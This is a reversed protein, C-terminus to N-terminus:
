PIGSRLGHTEVALLAPFRARTRGRFPTATTVVRLTHDLAGEQGLVFANHYRLVGGHLMFVFDVPQQRSLSAPDRMGEAFRFGGPGRSRAPKM